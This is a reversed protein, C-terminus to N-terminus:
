RDSKERRGLSSGHMAGFAYSSPLGAFFAFCLGADGWQGVAANMATLLGWAGLWPGWFKVGSSLAEWINM